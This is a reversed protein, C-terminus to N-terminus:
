SFYYDIKQSLEDVLEKEGEIIVRLIPETNSERVHIFGDKLNFRTGDLKNIDKIYEGFNLYIMREFREMHFNEKSYKKKIMKINKFKDYLRYLYDRDKALFELIFSTAVLSDRSNSVNFYIVGGNGEGGFKINNEIMKKTVNIEGVKSFLVNQGAKDALKKIMNSTSLNIVIDSKEKKLYYAYSFLLVFEESIIEGDKLLVAVRDGDPDYVFGIDYDKGKMFESLYKMTNVNPEPEREFAKEPNNFISDFSVGFRNLLEPIAFITTGNCFDCAVKLKAKRISDVDFNNEIKDIHAKIISDIKNYNGFKDLYSYGNQIIEREKESIYVKFKEIDNEDLFYGGKKILKLANYQIPNHSATIMIGCDINMDKVGFLLSPTPIVGFDFIDVGKSLIISKIFEKYIISSPRTDIGIAIKNPNMFEIFSNVLDFLIEPNLDEGILGRYGSVNIKQIIKDLSKM